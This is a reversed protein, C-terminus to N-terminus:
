HTLTVGSGFALPSACLAGHTVLTAAHPVGSLAVQVEPTTLPAIPGLYHLHESQFM